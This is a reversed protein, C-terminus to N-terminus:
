AEAGTLAEVPGRELVSQPVRPPKRKGEPHHPPRHYLSRRTGPGEGTNGLDGSIYHVHVGRAVLLKSSHSCVNVMQQKDKCGREREMEDPVDRKGRHSTDNM